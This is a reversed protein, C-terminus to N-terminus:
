AMATIAGSKVSVDDARELSRGNQNEPPFYVWVFLYGCVGADEGKEMKM